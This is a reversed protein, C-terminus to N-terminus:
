CSTPTFWESVPLGAAVSPQHLAEHGCHGVEGTAPEGYGIRARAVPVLRAKACVQVAILRRTWKDLSQPIDCGPQVAFVYRAASVPHTAVPHAVARAMEMKRAAVVDDIDTSRSLASTGGETTSQDAHAATPALALFALAGAISLAGARRARAGNSVERTTTSRSAITSKM